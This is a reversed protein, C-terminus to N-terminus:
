FPVGAYLIINAFPTCEGTRISAHCHDMELKFVEHEITEIDINSNQDTELVGIAILLKDMLQPQQDRLEQAIIIREIFMESAVANFVDLLGPVGPSVALDIREITKPVPLGADGICVSNGHGLKAVLSSVPANLLTTKKM